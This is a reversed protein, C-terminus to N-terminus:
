TNSNSMKVCQYNINEQCRGETRSLQIDTVEVYQYRLIKIRQFHLAEGKHRKVIQIKCVIITDRTEM